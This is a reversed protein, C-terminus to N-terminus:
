KRLRHFVVEYITGDQDAGVATLFLDFTGLKEHEFRHIKQDLRPAIPGRFHLFFLETRAPSQREEVEVLEVVLPSSDSRHVKFKTHLQEAFIKGNLRDLSDKVM